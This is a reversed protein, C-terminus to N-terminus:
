QPLCFVETVYLQRSGARTARVVGVGVLTVQPDLIASSHAPSAMLSEHAAEASLNLAVNEAIIRFNIGAEKARDQIFGTTPSKHSIFNKRAMELSHEQAIKMLRGDVTLPALSNKKRELNILEILKKEGLAPDITPEGPIPTPETLLPEGEGQAIVSFLSAIEPSSDREVQIEVRYLGSGGDFTLPQRFRMNDDVKVHFERMAGIPQSIIVTPNEGQVVRGTLIMSENRKVTRPFPDLEVDRKIMIVAIYKLPPIFKSVVGVGVHTFGQSRIQRLIAGEVLDEMEVVRFQSSMHAAFYNDTVGRGLLFKSIERNTINGFEKPGRESMFKALDRAAFTLGPDQAPAQRNWRQCATELMRFVEGESQTPVTDPAVHYPLSELAPGAQPNADDQGSSSCALMLLFIAIVGYKIHQNM